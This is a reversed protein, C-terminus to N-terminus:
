FVCIMRHGARPLRGNAFTRQRPTLQTGVVVRDSRFYEISWAELRSNYNWFIAFSAVSFVVTMLWWAGAHQKASWRQIPYLWLGVLIAVLFRGYSFWIDKGGGSPPHIVFGSLATMISTAVLALKNWNQRLSTLTFAM